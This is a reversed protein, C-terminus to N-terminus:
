PQLHKNFRQLMRSKPRYEYSRTTQVEWDGDPLRRESLVSSQPLQTAFDVCLVIRKELSAQSATAAPFTITYIDLAPNTADAARQEFQVDAGDPVKGLSLNLIEGMREGQREMSAADVGVIQSISSSEGPVTEIKTGARVNWVELKAKPGRQQAYFEGDCKWYEASPAGDVGFVTVHVTQANAVKSNFKDINVNLATASQSSIVYIGILAGVVVSLVGVPVYTKLRRSSLRRKFGAALVRPGRTKKRVSKARGGRLQVDIPYAAYSRLNKNSATAGAKAPTYVTAVGSDAREAAGYIVRHMNQVKALCQPCSFVHATVAERGAASDAASSVGGGPPVVFDFIDADVIRGCGTHADAQAHEQCRYLLDQRAEYVRERCQPCARIHDALHTPTEQLSLDDTEALMLKVQRCEAPDTPAPEAYLAALRVLQEQTLGLSRLHDLDETCGDCQDVHVTIPTPIRIHDFLLSPLYRKVQNCAVQEGMHDFHSQLEAILERSHSVRHTNGEPAAEGLVRGLREVQARCHACGDIHGAVAGPVTGRNELFDHYYFQAERCQGNGELGVM